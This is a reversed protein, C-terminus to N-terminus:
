KMGVEHGKFCSLWSPSLVSVEINLYNSANGLVHANPSQLSFLAMAALM